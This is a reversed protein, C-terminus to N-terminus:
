KISYTLLEIRNLMYTNDQKNYYVKHQNNKTNKQKSFAILKDQKDSNLYLYNIYLKLQEQERVIFFLRNQIFNMRLNNTPANELFFKIYNEIEQNEFYVIPNLDKFVFDKYSQCFHNFFSVIKNYIEKEIILSFSVNKYEDIDYQYIYNDFYKIVKDETNINENQKKAKFLDKFFFPNLRYKKKIDFIGFPISIAGFTLIINLGIKSNFIAVVDNYQLTKDLSKAESKDVECLFIHKKLSNLSFNITYDEQFLKQNTIFVCKRALFDYLEDSIRLAFIQENETNYFVEYNEILDIM